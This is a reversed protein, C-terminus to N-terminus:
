KKVRKLIILELATGAKSAYETPRATGAADICLKLDDGDLEYITLETHATDGEGEILDMTKPKAAPDIKLQYDHFVNDPGTMVKLRDATVIFTWDKYQEDPRRAGQLDVSVVQWTGILKEKDTDKAAPAASLSAALSLTLLLLVPRRM